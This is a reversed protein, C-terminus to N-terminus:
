MSEAYDPVRCLPAPRSHLDLSSLGIAANEQPSALATRKHSTARDDSTASEPHIGTFGFGAHSFRSSGQDKGPLDHGLL